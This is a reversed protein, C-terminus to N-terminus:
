PRQLHIEKRLTEGIAVYFQESLHKLSPHRIMLRHNGPALILHRNLPSVDISDGDIWVEGWPIISLDLYGVEQWLNIHINQVPRESITLNKRIQPFGPSHIELELLHSAAALVLTCPTVGVSDGRRFIVARPDSTIRLSISDSASTIPQTSNDRTVNETVRDAATRDTANEKNEQDRSGIPITQQAPQDFKETIQTATSDAVKSSVGHDASMLQFVLFILIALAVPALAWVAQWRRHLAAQDQRVPATAVLTPPEYAEPAQLFKTLINADVKSGLSFALDQLANWLEQASSFRDEPQRNMLRAVIRGLSDPVAPQITLIPMPTLNVIRNFMTPVDAAQFPNEGTLMEYGVVGLSYLDSRYDVTRGLVLEPALYAPTGQIQLQAQEITTSFGLDGLKVEGQDSIFINEPKIDQHILKNKHISMLGLTVQQLVYLCIDWPLAGHQQLLDALTLGEIFETVLFPVGDEIGLEHVTIVQPSRIKALVLGEQKFRGVLEHDNILDPNLQKVLVVRELEPQLAKYVRTIPGHQLETFLRYKGIQNM